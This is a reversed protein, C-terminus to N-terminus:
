HLVTPLLIQIIESKHNSLNSCPWDTTEPRVWLHRPEPSTAYYKLYVTTISCGVKSVDKILKIGIKDCTLLHYCLRVGLCWRNALQVLQTHTTNVKSKKHFLQQIIFLLVFSYSRHVNWRVRNNTCQRVMTWLCLKGILCLSILSFYLSFNILKRELQM